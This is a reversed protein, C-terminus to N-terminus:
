KQGTVKEDEILPTDTIALSHDHEVYNVSTLGLFGRLKEAPVKMPGPSPASGPTPQPFATSSATHFTINGEEKQITQHIHGNLVSVSGFRKLLALAQASDDTGWGWQPYIAWLPIHAFVVIPTSNSLPKLDNELWKLQAQGIYGLGGDVHNTVNVLGIFHVGHSDFSYWGDGLTGKGYRELYLKGNDTVDHEGPVYFIKETKVSKLSQELTDFEDAQALHSLDGTHLVFAPANPMSNIKTIAANLTGVVDPNAAKNFGIHSDSIQVFSFDSKPVILGKKLGGTARDIMQSMGYSKLVGGTMMWLVGTGAWAMCELFGRRDIGDNGADHSSNEDAHFHNKM